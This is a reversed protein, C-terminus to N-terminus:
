DARKHYIIIGFPALDNTWIYIGVVM